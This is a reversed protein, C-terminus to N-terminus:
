KLREMERQHVNQILIQKMNAPSNYKFVEASTKLGVSYILTKKSSFAASNPKLM